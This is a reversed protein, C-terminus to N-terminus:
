VFVFSVVLFRFHGMIVWILEMCLVSDWFADIEIADLIGSNEFYNISRPSSMLGWLTFYKYM